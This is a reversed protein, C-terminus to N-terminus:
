NDLFKFSQQFIQFIRNKRIASFNALQFCSAYNWKSKCNRIASFNFIWIFSRLNNETPLVKLM